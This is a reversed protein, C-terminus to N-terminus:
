TETRDLAVGETVIDSISIGISLATIDDGLPKTGTGVSSIKDGSSTTAAGSLSSEENLPGTETDIRGVVCGVCTALFYQHLPIELQIGQM